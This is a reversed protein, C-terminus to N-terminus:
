GNEPANRFNRFAVILETMNTQREMRRDELLLEAGVPRIKMLNSMQNKKLIQGTFERKM